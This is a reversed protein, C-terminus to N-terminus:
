IVEKFNQPFQTNSLDSGDKLGRFDNLPIKFKIFHSLQEPENKREALLSLHGPELVTFLSLVNRYLAM